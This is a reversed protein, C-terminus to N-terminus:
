KRALASLAQRHAALLVAPDRPYTTFTPVVQSLAARAARPDRRLWLTFLGYDEVGDRFAEWRLSSRPGRRGPYVIFDDGPAFLGKSPDVPDGAPWQNLGWHLFGTLDYRQAVWPLLRTKLLPYDILRNAYAGQPLWSTYAWLEMGGAQQRARYTSDYWRDLVDEVVVWIELDGALDPVQIAEIRKLRPAAAHARRSLARWSAVNEPVPEDAIHMFAHALWGRQNLHHELSKLFVELPVEASDTTGVIPARRPLPEFPNTWAWPETRRGLHMLEIDRLGASLFLEVWRDFRSYDFTFSGGAARSVGILDLDTEFMTQGHARMDDAYARLLQWHADSWEDVHHHAAIAQRSFWNTVRLAPRDPPPLTVPMVDVTLPVTRLLNAGARVAVTGGYRGPAATRPVAVRVLAPQSSDPCVRIEPDELLPDPFDDPARRVLEADPTHDSNKTLRVYGVWDAWVGGAGDAGLAHGRRDVLQSPEIRVSDLCPGRPGRARVVVQASETEGRAAMLRIATPADPPPRTDRFVNELAHTTWVEAAATARQYVRVYDVRMTQPFITTSDPSGPWYGGVAVNLIIFFPHDYVWPGPVSRPTITRYLSDGVYWRITDPAWEVAFVHFDDAFAGSSLTFSSTVGRAGSYGPGHVTGHVVPPERGINEMIDIEGCTPWGVQVCNNGLMWFAPWLGQGRPIQIRAEIRGYQWAGGADVRTKLRASTYDRASVAERRAEIVLQGNEIRTNAGRETYYELEANGWGDGGTEQAWFTTDLAPGDFEDHWVLQWAPPAPAAEPNRTGPCAVLAASAGWALLTRVGSDRKM